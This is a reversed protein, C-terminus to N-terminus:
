GRIDIILYAFFGACVDFANRLSVIGVVKIITNLRSSMVKATSKNNPTSKESRNENNTAKITGAKTYKSIKTKKIILYEKDLFLKNAEIVAANAVQELEQYGMQTRNLTNRVSDPIEVKPANAAPKAASALGACFVAALLWTQKMKIM